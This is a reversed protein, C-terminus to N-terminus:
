YQNRPSSQQNETTDLRSRDSEDEPKKWLQTTTYTTTPTQGGSNDLPALLPEKGSLSSSPMDPKNSAHVFAWPKIKRTRLSQKNRAACSDHQDFITVGTLPEPPTTRTIFAFFRQLAHLIRQLWSPKQAQPYGARALIIRQTDEPLVSRINKLASAGTANLAAYANHHGSLFEAAYAQNFEDRLTGKDNFKPLRGTKAFIEEMADLQLTFAAARDKNSKCGYLSKLIMTEYAARWLNPNRDHSTSPSTQLLEAYDSLITLFKLTDRDTLTLNEQAKIKEITDNVNNQLTTFTSTNGMKDWNKLSSKIDELKGALAPYTAKLADLNELSTQILIATVKDKKLHTTGLLLSRWKNVARNAYTVGRTQACQTNDKFLRYEQVGPIPVPTVLGLMVPASTPHNQKFQEIALTTLRQRETKDTVDIPTPTAARYYTTDSIVEGNKKLIQRHESYNALGPYRRLTSPPTGLSEAFTQQYAKESPTTSIEEAAQKAKLVRSQLEKQEWKPLATFWKPHNNEGLISLYEKVLNETFRYIPKEILIKEIGDHQYYTELTPRTRWNALNEASRLWRRVENKSPHGSTRVLLQGTPSRHTRFGTLFEFDPNTFLDVLLAAYNEQLTNITHMEGLTPPHSLAVAHISDETDKLRKEAEAIFSTKHDDIFYDGPAEIIPMNKILMEFANFYSRAREIASSQIPLSTPTPM